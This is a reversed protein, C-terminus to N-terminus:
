ADLVPLLLRSPGPTLDVGRSSDVVNLATGDPTSTSSPRRERDAM